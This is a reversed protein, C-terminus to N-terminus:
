GILVSVNLSMIKLPIDSWTNMYPFVTDTFRHTFIHIVRHTDPDSFSLMGKDWDLHVRVRCLKENLPLPCMPHSPSWAAFKGNSFRVMWLGSLIQGKRQAEKTMVGLAWVENNRVDVDWSHSGSSYGVCGLVSRHQEMREPQNPVVLYPAESPAHRVCTLSDSLRMQRHATNPNLIVPSYSVLEKMKCWVNFKLNGMHKGVDIVAARVPKPDCPLTRLAARKIDDLKFLFSADEDRLGEEAPKITSELDNTKSDLAAIEQRIVATKFTEEAKLARIREEEERRLFTRLAEFEGKIKEETDRTQNKIDVEIKGWAVRVENFLKVKEQMPKLMELVNKRGMDAAEDIPIFTHNRHNNSERCIVCIPTRHNLCYLKLKESHLRCFVGSKIELVFADCLNKLVLNRPPDNNSTIITRCFPCERVEKTDWWQVVCGYCFSHTCSLIVPDKFYDQCVSCFLERRPLSWSFAM